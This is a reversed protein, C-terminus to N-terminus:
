AYAQLDRYINICVYRLYGIFIKQQIPSVYEALIKQWIGRLGASSLASQMPSGDYDKQIVPNTLNKRKFYCVSFIQKEWVM